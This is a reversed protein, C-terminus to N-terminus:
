VENWTQGDDYSLFFTPTTDGDKVLSMEWPNSPAHGGDFGGGSWGNEAVSIPSSSSDLFSFTSSWATDGVGWFQGKITGPGSTGSDFEFWARLRDGDANSRHGILVVDSAVSDPTSWTRAFDDSYTSYTGTSGGGLDRWFYVWIRRIPSLEGSIYPGLCDNTSTVTTTTEWGVFPANPTAYRVVVNSDSDVYAEFIEGEPTCYISPTQGFISVPWNQYTGHWPRYDQGRPEGGQDVLFDDELNTLAHAHSTIAWGTLTTLPSTWVVNAPSVANAGEYPAVYRTSGQSWIWVEQAFAGTTAWDSDRKRVPIWGVPPVEAYSNVLALNWEAAGSPPLIFGVGDRDVQGVSQGEFTDFLTTLLTTFGDDYAIGQLVVQGFELVDVITSKYPGPGVLPPNTWSSPYWVWSGFRVGPGAGHVTVQRQPTTVFQQRASSLTYRLNPFDITVPMSADTPTAVFRLKAATRDSLGQTSMSLTPDNFVTTSDGGADYDSGQDVIGDLGWDDVWDGCYKSPTGYPWDKEVGPEDTSVLVTEGNRGVLYVSCASINSADWDPTIKNALAPWLFPAETFSSLDLDFTVDGSFSGTPTSTAGSADVVLTGDDVSWLGPSNEDYTFSSMPTVPFTQWRNIGCWALGTGCFADLFARDGDYALPDSVNHVRLMTPSSLATNYTFQQWATMWYDFRDAPSGDVDWDQFWNFFSWHPNCWSNLYRPRPEAHGMYGAMDSSPGVSSPFDFSRSSSYSEGPPEPTYGVWVEVVTSEDECPPPCFVAAPCLIGGVIVTEYTVTKTQGGALHAESYAHYAFTDEISATSDSVELLLVDQHPHVTGGTSTSTIVGDDDCSAAGSWQTEPMETRYLLFRAGTEMREISRDLDPVLGAAATRSESIVETKYRTWPVAPHQTICSEYYLSGCCYTQTCCETIDGSDYESKETSQLAHGTLVASTTNSGAVTGLGPDDCAGPVAPATGSYLTFPVGTWVGSGPEQFDASLTLTPDCTSSYSYTTPLPGPLGTTSATGSVSGYICMAGYMLYDPGLGGSIFGSVSATIKLVGNNYVTVTGNQLWNGGINYVEDGELIVEVTLPGTDAWSVGLPAGPGTYTTANTGADVDYSMSVTFFASELVADPTFLVAFGGSASYSGTGLGSHSVSADLVGKWRRYDATWVKGNVPM